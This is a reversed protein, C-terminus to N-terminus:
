SEMRENAPAEGGAETAASAATIAERIAELEQRMALMQELGSFQALQTLFELGDAPDLPNQNRIQAVLLKLFMEKDIDPNGSGATRNGASPDGTLGSVSTLTAVSSDM